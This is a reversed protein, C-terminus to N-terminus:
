NTQVIVIVIVVNRNIMGAFVLVSFNCYYDYNLYYLKLLLKSMSNMVTNLFYICLYKLSLM